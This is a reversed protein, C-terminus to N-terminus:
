LLSPYLKIDSARTNTTINAQMTNKVYEYWYINSVSGRYPTEPNYQPKKIAHRKNSRLLAFLGYGYYVTFNWRPLVVGIDLLKIIVLNIIVLGGIFM